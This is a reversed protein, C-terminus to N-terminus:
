IVEMIMEYMAVGTQNEIRIDRLIYGKEKINMREPPAEGPKLEVKLTQKKTETLTPNGEILIYVWPVKQVSM